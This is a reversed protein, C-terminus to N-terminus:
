KCVAREENPRDSSNVVLRLVIIVADDGAAAGGEMRRLAVGVYMLVFSMAAGPGGRAVYTCDRGM